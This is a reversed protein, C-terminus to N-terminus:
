QLKLEFFYKEGPPIKKGFVSYTVEPSSYEFQVWIPAGPREREVVLVAPVTGKQSSINKVGTMKTVKWDGAPGLLTSHVLATTATDITAIPRRFDYPGWEDVLIFQRGRPFDGPLAAVMGGPLSDPEQLEAVAIELPQYPNEPFGHHSFNLSQAASLDPAAWIKPLISSDAYIDNRLFRFHPNASKSDLLQAFNFFLNEGNVAVSDSGSIHLPTGNNLFVNRDIVANKSRTDRQKPYGWDGPETPNDWLKIGSLNDLFLNQRITNNQGHEIALATKCESILNGAVLTEYSYGGWIGYTCERIMNGRIVNRSFTVEVGNTPAHSFDNGFILNDNCGGAGTDMTTQGAWLFLGDGSHTASNYAILNNSSQEYLLIGASDQGRQYFGHSYGRVNWDLKNHMFRGKSCRYLGIGLGSNFQFVNNWVLAENCGTMLLANQNAKAKCGRVEAQPCNKLYIGAGYRLWEDRENHHYSLWDALDEKERGSLLRPRYNYSVDCNILKLDTCNEAIIAVKYGSIRANKLTIDNGKIVIAVGGFLDPRDPNDSGMLKAQQFDVEIHKGEIRIVPTCRTGGLSDTFLDKANGPLTYTDPQVTVSQRIVLNPTLRIPTNQAMLGSAALVGALAWFFRLSFMVSNRKM